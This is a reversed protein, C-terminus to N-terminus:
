EYSGRQWWYTGVHRAEERESRAAHRRQRQVRAAKRQFRRAADRLSIGERQAYVELKAFSFAM